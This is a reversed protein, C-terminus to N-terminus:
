SLPLPKAGQGLARRAPKRRLPAARGDRRARGLGRGRRDGHVHRRQPLPALVGRDLDIDRCDREARGRVGRPRDGRGTGLGEGHIEVGKGNGVVKKERARPKKQNDM